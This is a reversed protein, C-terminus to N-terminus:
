GEDELLKVQRSVAAPDMSCERAVEGLTLEGAEDVSRLIAYGVRSVDVGVSATQQPQLRRNANLRFLRELAHEAAEADAHSATGAGARVDAGVDARETGATM